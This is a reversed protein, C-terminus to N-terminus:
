GPPSPVYMCILAPLQCCSNLIKRTPFFTTLSDMRYAASRPATRRRPLEQPPDEVWVYSRVYKQFAVNPFLHVVISAAADNSNQYSGPM